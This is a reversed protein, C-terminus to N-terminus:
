ICICTCRSVPSNHPVLPHYHCLQRIDLGLTWHLLNSLKPHRAPAVTQMHTFNHCLPVTPGMSVDPLTSAGHPAMTIHIHYLYRTCRSFSIHSVFLLYQQFTTTWFLSHASFDRCSHRYGIGLRLVSESLPNQPKIYKPLYMGGHTGKICPIVKYYCPSDHYYVVTTTNEGKLQSKRIVNVRRGRAMWLRHIHSGGIFLLDLFLESPPISLLCRPDRSEFERGFSSLQWSCSFSKICVGSLGFQIIYRSFCHYVNHDRGKTGCKHVCKFRILQSVETMGLSNSVKACRRYARQLILVWNTIWVKTSCKLILMLSYHLTVSFCKGRDASQSCMLWRLIQPAGIQCKISNLDGCAGQNLREYKQYLIYEQRLVKKKELTGWSPRSNWSLRPKGWLNSGLSFWQSSQRKHVILSSVPFQQPILFLRFIDNFLIDSRTKPRFAHLVSSGIIAYLQVHWNVCVTDNCRHWDYQIQQCPLDWVNIQNKSFAHSM